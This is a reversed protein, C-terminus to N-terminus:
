AYVAYVYDTGNLIANMMEVVQTPNYTFAREDTLVTEVSNAPVLVKALSIEYVNANQTLEPATASTGKLVELTLTRNLVDLKLIIRDMRNTTSADLSLSKASKIVGIRGNVFATGTGVEVSLGNVSVVMENDKDKMIGNSTIAQLIENFESATYEYTAGDEAQYDFLGFFDLNM